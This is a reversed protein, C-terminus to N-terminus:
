IQMQRQISADDRDPLADFAAQAREGDQTAVQRKLSIFEIYDETLKFSSPEQRAIVRLYTGDTDNAISEAVEKIASLASRYRTVGNFHRRLRYCSLLLRDAAKVPDSMDGKRELLSDYKAWVDRKIPNRGNAVQFVADVDRQYSEQLWRVPIQSTWELLRDKIDGIRVAGRKGHFGIKKILESALSDTESPQQYGIRIAAESSYLPSIEIGLWRRGLGRAVKLTTGSGAFPDLVMDGPQSCARIIRESVEEPFVAIHSTQETMGFAVRDVEWVNGPNRGWFNNRKDYEKARERVADVSFFPDAGEKVYWMVTEHKNTFKKTFAHGGWYRWIIRDWLAFRNPGHCFFDHSLLDIPMIERSDRDRQTYGTQWFISGGPRVVRKLQAISSELFVRYEDLSSKDSANSQYPKDINYPPSTHVLDVCNDPLTALVNVADGVLIRNEIEGMRAIDPGSGTLNCVYRAVSGHPVIDTKVQM